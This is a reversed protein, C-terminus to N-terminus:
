FPFEDREAKTQAFLKAARPGIPYAPADPGHETLELAVRIREVHKTVDNAAAVACDVADHTIVQGLTRQDGPIAYFADHPAVKRQLATLQLWLDHARLSMDALDNRMSQDM